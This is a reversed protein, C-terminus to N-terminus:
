LNASSTASSSENENHMDSTRLRRVQTNAFGQLHHSRRSPNVRVTRGVRAPRQTRGWRGLSDDLKYYTTIRLVRKQAQKTQFCLLREATENQAKVMTRYNDNHM